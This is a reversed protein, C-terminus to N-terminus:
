SKGVSESLPKKPEGPPILSNDEPHRRQNEHGHAKPQSASRHDAPKEHSQRTAKVKNQVSVLAKSQIIDVDQQVDESRSATLHNNDSASTQIMNNEAASMSASKIVKEAIDSNTDQKAQNSLPVQSYVFGATVVAFLVGLAIKNKNMIYVGVLLVTYQICYAIMFNSQPAIGILRIFFLLQTFVKGLLHALDAILKCQLISGGTLVLVYFV